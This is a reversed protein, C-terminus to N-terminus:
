PAPVSRTRAAATRGLGWGELSPARTREVRDPPYEIRHPPAAFGSPSPVPSPQVTPLPLRRSSTAIRHAAAAPTPPVPEPGVAEDGRARRASSRVQDRLPPTGRTM